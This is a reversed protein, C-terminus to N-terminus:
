SREPLCAILPLVEHEELAMHARYASAFTDVRPRLADVLAPDPDHGLELAQRLTELEPLLARWAEEAHHHDGLHAGLWAARDAPAANTAMTSTPLLLVGDSVVLVDIEGVRLAYRSPVLDNPGPKNSHLANDLSLM